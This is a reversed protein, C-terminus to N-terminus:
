CHCAPESLFVARLLARQSCTFLQHLTETHSYVIGHNFFYQTIALSINASLIQACDPFRCFFVGIPDHASQTLM